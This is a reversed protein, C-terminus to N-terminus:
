PISPIIQQGISALDGTAPLLSGIKLGKGSTATTTSGGPTASGGDGAPNNPATTDCAATLFGVVLTALALAFATNIKQM